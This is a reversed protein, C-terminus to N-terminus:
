EFFLFMMPHKNEYYIGSSTRILKLILKLIGVKYKNPKEANEKFEVNNAYMQRAIKLVQKLGYCNLVNVDAPFAHEEGIQYEKQM